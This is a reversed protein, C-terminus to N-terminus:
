SGYDVSCKPLLRRLQDVADTRHNAQPAIGSYGVGLERLRQMRAITPVSQETVKESAFFDLYELDYVECLRKMGADTVSTYYLGLSLLSSLRTEALHELYADTVQPGALWLTQLKDLRPLTSFDKPSMKTQALTLWQLSDITVLAQFDGNTLDAHTLALGRLQRMRGLWTLDASTVGASLRLWHVQRLGALQSRLEATLPVDHLDIMRATDNRLATLTETHLVSLPSKPDPPNHNLWYNLNMNPATPDRVGFIAFVDKGSDDTGRRIVESVDPIQCDVIWKSDEPGQESAALQKGTNTVPSPASSPRGCGLVVTVALVFAAKQRM